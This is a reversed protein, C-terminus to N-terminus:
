AALPEAVAALVEQKREGVSRCLSGYDAGVSEFLAKLDLGMGQLMGNLADIGKEVTEGPDGHRSTANSGLAILAKRAFEISKEAQDL